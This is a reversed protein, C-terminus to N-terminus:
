KIKKIAAQRVVKTDNNHVFAVISCNDVNVPVNNITAPITYTYNKTIKTGTPIISSSLSEGWVTNLTARLMNRHEYDLIHEGMSDQPSVIGDEILYVLLNENVTGDVLFENAVSVSLSRNADNYSTTIDIKVEAAKAAEEALRGEWLGKELWHVGGELTRNISAVPVHDLQFSTWLETGVDIRYDATFDGSTNPKALNGAHIGVLIMKDKYTGEMLTHALHSAEPCNPCKIGTFEEVLIMRPVANTDPNNNNTPNDVYPPEVVDCSAILALLFLPLFHLYKM